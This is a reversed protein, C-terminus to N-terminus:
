LLNSSNVQNAKTKVLHRCVVRLPVFSHHNQAGLPPIFSLALQNVKQGMLEVYHTPTLASVVGTVSYNGLPNLIVEMEQRASDNLGVRVVNKAISNDDM